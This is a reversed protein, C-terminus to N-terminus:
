PTLAVGETIIINSHALENSEVIPRKESPWKFNKQVVSIRTTGLVAMGSIQWLVIRGSLEYM